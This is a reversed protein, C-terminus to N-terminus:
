TEREYITLLGVVEKALEWEAAAYSKLRGRQRKELGRQLVSVLHVM